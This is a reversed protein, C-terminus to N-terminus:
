KKYPNNVYAWKKVLAQYFGIRGEIAWRGSEKHFRGFTASDSDELWVLVRVSINHSKNWGDSLDVEPKERESDKWNIVNEM